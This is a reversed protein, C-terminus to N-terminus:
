NGGELCAFPNLMDYPDDDEDEGDGADSLAVPFVEIDVLEMEEKLLQHLYGHRKVVPEDEFLESVVFLSFDDDTGEESEDLLEIRTANLQEDSKVKQIIRNYMTDAISSPDQADQEKKTKVAELAKEQMKSLMNKYGNTRSETLTQDIKALLIFSPDVARIEEATHGDFGQVLFTLQGRTILGDSFGQYNVVYDGKNEDYHAVGNVYVISQCGEVFNEPIKISEDAEPLALALRSLEQYRLKDDELAAFKNCLEKLKPTLYTTTTSSEEDSSSFLANSPTYSSVSNSVSFPTKTNYYNTMFGM